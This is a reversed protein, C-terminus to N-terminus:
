DTAQITTGTMEFWLVYINWCIIFNILSTIFLSVIVAPIM